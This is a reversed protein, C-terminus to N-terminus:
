NQSTSNVEIMERKIVKLSNDRVDLSSIFYLSGGNTSGFLSGIGEASIPRGVQRSSSDLVELFNRTFVDAIESKVTETRAVGGDPLGVVAGSLTSGCAHDYSPILASQSKARRLTKKPQLFEVTPEGPLVYAVQSRSRDWILDCEHDEAVPIPLARHYTKSAVIEENGTPSLLVVYPQENSTIGYISGDSGVLLRSIGVTLPGSSIKNLNGQPGVDFISIEHDALVLNGQATCAAARPMAPAVSGSGVLKGDSSIKQFERDHIAYLTGDSCLAFSFGFPNGHLTLEWKTTLRYDPESSQAGLLSGGTLLLCLTSFIVGSARLSFPRLSM